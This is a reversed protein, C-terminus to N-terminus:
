GCPPSGDTSDSTSGSAEDHQAVDVRRRRDLAAKLVQAYGATPAGTRYTHNEAHVRRHSVVQPLVFSQLGLDLARSYWDFFEGVRWRADFPGVREFTSIRTLLTGASNAPMPDLPCRLRAAVTPDLEPSLFHQVHGFFLEVHPQEAATALQWELKEPIWVDDASLFAIYDGGALAFGRNMAAGPGGNPQLVYHLHNAFRDAVAATGDTSGDDVVILEVSPHTQRLVSGIAEALYAEGNYVPIVTTVHPAARELSNVRGVM